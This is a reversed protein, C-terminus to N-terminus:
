ADTRSLRWAAAAVLAATVGCFLAFGNWPAMAVPSYAVGWLANGANSPLFRSLDAVANVHAALVPVVFLLGVVTTIGAATNRLLAGVALSFIVTVVLTLAPGLVIRAVDADGFWFGKLGHARWVAQGLTFAAFSSALAVPLTFATLVGLKGWLVPLRRPVVTLSARIMGSEYESTILLVALAGITLQALLNGVEASVAFNNPDPSPHRQGANSNSLLVGIGVTLAVTVTITWWTSRVSRFKTWESRFVRLQTVNGAISAQPRAVTSTNM